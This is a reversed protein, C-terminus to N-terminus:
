KNREVKREVSAFANHNHISEMNESEVYFWAIRKDSRLKLTIERVIDEVFTPNQYAKETVYKEDVRKLLAYVESSAASEIIEIIEELWIFEHYILKVTVNSRQSHAGFDSIEKSCPCLTTVPVEVGIKLCFDEQLSAEFICNYDMLSVTQSVPATKKIFYPFTLKVYSADANLSTKLEELFEHLKHIFNEQHFHNLVELFRSMHTGRHNHPLEVFMDLNAVTNQIKNARDEVSIPYRVNKVGVKDITINRNDQLSQIDVKDKM